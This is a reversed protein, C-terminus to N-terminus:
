RVSALPITAEHMKSGAASPNAILATYVPVALGDIVKYGIAERNEVFDLREVSKPMGNARPVPSATATHMAIERLKDLSRPQIENLAKEYAPVVERLTSRIGVVEDDEASFTIEVHGADPDIFPLGDIVQDFIVTREVIKPDGQGGSRTEYNEALYRVDNVQYDFDGALGFQDVIQRARDILADDDSLAQGSKARAPRDLRLEFDGDSDVILTSEETLVARLGFPRDQIMRDDAIRIGLSQAADFFESNSNGRKAIARVAVTAPLDLSNVDARKELEVTRATYYWRWAGAESSSANWTMQHETDRIAAAEEPTPGFAVVCPSQLRNIRWSADLFATSLTKGKNWEEWFFRGYDPNDVTDTEYGFIMRVGNASTGWTQYPSHSGSWKMSQSTDWFIYRNLENAFSGDDGGISMSDSRADWGRGSWDAGLSFLYTGDTGISGHSSNFVVMVADIGRDDGGYSWLDWNDSGSIDHFAWTGVDNDRYVFNPAYYGELYERFGNASDHPYSLDTQTGRFNEVSFTGHIDPTSESKLPPNDVPNASYAETVFIAESAAGNGVALGTPSSPEKSCAIMSLLVCCLCLIPWRSLSHSM